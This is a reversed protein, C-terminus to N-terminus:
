SAFADRLTRTAEDMAKTSADFIARLGFFGHIMGDYRSLVVPVGAARLREAYAEGEDRLPDFEGTIVLAPPLGALDTAALPSAKPDAVDPQYHGMFWEMSEKTLLYGEGNEDISPHGMTLDTAPYVLIQARLPPGGGDRAMLSIVAALNGGASDGAVALRNPDGNISAANAHVWQLAAFCDDPAAPYPHEPALRYDVAVVVANAGNCLERCAGDHTDLNGIVFGGGHFFVLVPFPGSGEPTYIRVPIEGAPGPITRDEVNAVADPEGSLAALMAFSARFAEPTQESMPVQPMLALQDLLTQAQPDLPM